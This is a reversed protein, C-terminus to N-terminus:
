GGKRSRRRRSHTRTPTRRVRQSKGDGFAIRWLINTGLFNGEEEDEEEDDEDDQSNKTCNDDDEELSINTLIKNVFIPDGYSFHSNKLEKGAGTPFILLFHVTERKNALRSQLSCFKQFTLEYNAVDEPRGDRQAERDNERAANAWRDRELHDIVDLAPGQVMVANKALHQQSGFLYSDAISMEWEPGDQSLVNLYIEYTPVLVKKIPFEQHEVIKFPFNAEPRNPDVLIVFPKEESGDPQCNSTKLFQSVKLIVELPAANPM